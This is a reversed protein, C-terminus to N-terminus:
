IKKNIFDIIKQKFIEKDFSLAYKRIEEADFNIQEFQDIANNLSRISQTEFFVWTKEEIVTELAGWKKYAIVPTGSAM